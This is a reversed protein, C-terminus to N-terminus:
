AHLNVHLSIVINSYGYCNAFWDLLISTLWCKTNMSKLVHSFYLAHLSVYM